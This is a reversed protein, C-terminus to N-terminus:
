LSGTDTPSSYHQRHAVGDRESADASLGYVQQRSHESM